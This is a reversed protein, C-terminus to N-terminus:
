YMDTGLGVALSASPVLFRPLSPCIEKKKSQESPFTDMLAYGGEEEPRFGIHGEM